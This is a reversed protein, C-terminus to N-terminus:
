KQKKGHLRREKAFVRRLRDRKEYYRLLVINPDMKKNQLENLAQNNIFIVAAEFGHITFERQWDWEDSADELFQVGTEDLSTLIGKARARHMLDDRTRMNKNRIAEKRIEPHKDFIDSDNIKSTYYAEYFKKVIKQEEPPLNEIYELYDFREDKM